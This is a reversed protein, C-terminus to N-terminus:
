SKNAARNSNNNNANGSQQHDKNQVNPGATSNPKSRCIYAGHGFKGCELCHHDFKCSKRLSCLGKNFRQCIEKRAKFKQNNGSNFRAQNNYHIRDKLCMTWAQQLIIAWSRQPYEGMHMRFERDYTYVNDWLYTSSATFIVHNYQILEAARDPHERSFINSYIRFAQERKSFNTIGSSERDSPVFFTQGERKVIQLKPEDNVALRDKPLLRSFDVYEGKKPPKLKCKFWRIAYRM